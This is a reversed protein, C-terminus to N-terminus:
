DFLLRRRARRHQRSVPINVHGSVDYSEEGGKTTSVEADFQASYGTTDPKNTIYVLTGTQSSSGFLTGQPGPLAEVRELDIPRVEAQQSNATMPQDDLYVAVQSDTRFEASSTAVGRMVIANAGPQYSVLSVSPLANVIDQTGQFAQKEIDDTTFATISQPVTQLNLERRTATVLIEELRADARQALTASAPYLAAIIAAALPTTSCHRSPLLSTAAAGIRNKRNAVARCRESM